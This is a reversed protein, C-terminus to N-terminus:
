DPLGFHVRSKEHVHVEQPQSMVEYTETKLIQMELEDKQFDIGGDQLEGYERRLPMDDRSSPSSQVNMPQQPKRSSYPISHQKSSAGRQANRDGTRLYVWLRPMTPFTAALIVTALEAASCNPTLIIQPITHSMFILGYRAFLFTNVPSLKRGCRLRIYIGSSM